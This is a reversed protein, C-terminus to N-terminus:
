KAFKCEDDTNKILIRNVNTTEEYAIIKIFYALDPYENIFNFFFKIVKNNEYLITNFNCTKTYPIINEVLNKIYNKTKLLYDFKITFM